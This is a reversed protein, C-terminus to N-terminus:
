KGFDGRRLFKNCYCIFLLFLKGRFRERELDIFEQETKEFGEESLNVSFNIYFTRSKRHSTQAQTYYNTTKIVPGWLFKIARAVIRKQM